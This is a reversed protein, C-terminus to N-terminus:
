THNQVSILLQILWWRVGMADHIAEMGAYIGYDDMTSDQFTSPANLVCLSIKGDPNFFDLILTIVMHEDTLKIADGTGQILLKLEDVAGWVDSCRPNKAGIVEQYFSIDSVSPIRVMADPDRNLVHPLVKRAFKLWRYIPTFTQGFQLALNNAWSGRTRYM